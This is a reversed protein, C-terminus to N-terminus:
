NKGNSFHHNLTPPQSRMRRRGRARSFRFTM